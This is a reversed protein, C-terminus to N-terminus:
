ADLVEEAAGAQVGMLSVSHALIDHLERAMRLREQELVALREREQDRELRLTEVSAAAALRRRRVYWGLVWAGTPILLWVLNSSSPRSPAASRGACGRVRRRVRGRARGAGGALAAVLGRARRRLVRGCDDAGRVASRLASTRFGRAVAPRNWRRDHGAGCEAVPAACRAAVGRAVPACANEPRPGEVTSRVWVDLQGALAFVAALAVDGAVARSLRAPIRM